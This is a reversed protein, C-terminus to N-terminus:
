PSTPRPPAGARGAVIKLLETESVRYKAAKQGDIMLVPIELGYRAELDADTSIDIDEITLPFTRGVRMVVDKM